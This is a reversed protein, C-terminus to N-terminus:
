GLLFKRMKSPPVIAEGMGRSAAASPEPETTTVTFLKLILPIAALLIPAWPISGGAGVSFYDLAWAGLALIISYILGPIRIGNSM